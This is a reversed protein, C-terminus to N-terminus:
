LAPLAAPLQPLEHPEGLREAEHALVDLLGTETWESLTKWGRESITNWGHALISQNRLSLRKEILEIESGAIGGVQARRTWFKARRGEGRM